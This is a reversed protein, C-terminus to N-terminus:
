LKLPAVALFHRPRSLQEDAKLKELSEGRERIAWQNHLFALSLFGGGDTLPM